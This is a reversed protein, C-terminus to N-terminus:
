CLFVAHSLVAAGSFTNVSCLADAQIEVVFLLILQLLMMSRNKSAVQSTMLQQHEVHALLFAAHSQGSPKKIRPDLPDTFEILPYM